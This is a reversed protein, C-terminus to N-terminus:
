TFVMALIFVASLAGLITLCLLTVEPDIKM